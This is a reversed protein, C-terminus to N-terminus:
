HLSRITQLGSKLLSKLTASMTRIRNVNILRATKFIIYVNIIIYSNCTFLILCYLSFIRFFINKYKESM